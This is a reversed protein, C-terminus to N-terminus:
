RILTIEGNLIKQSGNYFDLIIYYQYVGQQCATGKAKGDWGRNNGSDQYVMQGYRNYIEFRRVTFHDGPIKFFDNLGDGNPTFANPMIMRNDPNVIIESYATDWCGYDNIGVVSFTTNETPSALVEERFSNDLPNVPSWTYYTAGSAKLTIQQGYTIEAFAPSISVEPKPYATLSINISTTCGEASSINLKYIGDALGSAQFVSDTSAAHIILGQENRLTYNYQGGDAKGAQLTINGPCGYQQNKVEPLPIFVVSYTDILVSCEKNYYIVYNGSETITRQPNTSGDDWQMCSLNSALQITTDSKFCVTIHYKVGQITDNTPIVPTVMQYPMDCGTYDSSMGNYQNYVANLIPNSLLGINNPNNIVHLAMGNGTGPCVSPHSNSLYIKGDPGRQMNGILYTTIPCFADLMQAYPNTLVITKSSSIVTQINTSLDFQYLSQNFQYTSSPWLKSNSAYLKSNDPSFCVGHVWSGTDIIMNNKLKGSCKEFDYLELGGTYNYIGGNPLGTAVKKGNPSVALIGNSGWYNMVPFSGIESVVPSSSVGSSTVKFSLYQNYTRHRAVLWIGDCGAIAVMRCGILTNYTYALVNKYGPVIDGRGNNLTIDFLCYILGGNRVYFIYYQNSNGPRPIIVPRSYEMDNTQLFATGAIPVENKDFICPADQGNRTHTYRKVIFLLSGGADCVAQAYNYQHETPYMTTANQSQYVTGNVYTTDRLLPPNHNFDLSYHNGFTWINNQGQGYGAQWLMLIWLYGFIKRM